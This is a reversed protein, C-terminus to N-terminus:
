RTIRVRFGLVALHTRYDQPFLQLKENYDFYKWEGYAVLREAVPMELRAFPRHFNVPLSGSNGWASYGLSLTLNRLLLASLYLNGFNGLERFGFRDFRFTQPILYPIETDLESRAWEGWLSLRVLPTYTFQLSYGRNRSRFDLLESDHDFLTLSGNFELSEMPSFRGRIRLRDFDVPDTRFIPRETRGYEYDVAIRNGSSFKYSAGLILVNRDFSYREDLELEKKEFRHGVRVLLNPQLHFQAEL